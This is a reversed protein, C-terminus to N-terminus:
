QSGRHGRHRARMRLNPHRADRALKAHPQHKPQAQHHQGLRQQERARQQPHAETERQHIQQIRIRM